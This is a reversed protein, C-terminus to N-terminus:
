TPLGHAWARVASNQFRTGRSVPAISRRGARASASFRVPWESYSGLSVCQDNSPPKTMVYASPCDMWGPLVTRQCAAGFPM